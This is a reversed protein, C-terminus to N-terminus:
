ITLTIGNVNVFGHRICSKLHIKFFGLLFL